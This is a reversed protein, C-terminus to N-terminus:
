FYFVRMFNDLIECSKNLIYSLESMLSLLRSDTKDTFCLVIFGQPKFAGGFILLLNSLFTLRLMLEDLNQYNYNSKPSM